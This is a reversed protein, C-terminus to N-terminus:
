TAEIAMETTRMLKVTVAAMNRCVEVYLGQQLPRQSGERWPMRMDGTAQEAVSLFAKTTDGLYRPQKITHTKVYM